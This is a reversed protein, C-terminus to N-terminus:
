TMNWVTTGFMVYLRLPFDNLEFVHGILSQFFFVSLSFRAGANRDNCM